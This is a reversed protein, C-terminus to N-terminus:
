PPRLPLGADSIRDDAGGQAVPRLGHRVVRGAIRDEAKPRRAPCPVAVVCELSTSARNRPESQVLHRVTPGGGRGFGISGWM